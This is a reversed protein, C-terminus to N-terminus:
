HTQKVKCLMSPSQYLVLSEVNLAICTNSFNLASRGIKGIRNSLEVRTAGTCDQLMEQSNIEAPHDRTQLRAHLAPAYMTGHACENQGLIAIGAIISVIV